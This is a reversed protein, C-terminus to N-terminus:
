LLKEINIYNEELIEAIRKFTVDLIDSSSVDKEEILWRIEKKLNSSIEFLCNHMNSSNNFLNYERLDKDNDLDLIIKVKAM